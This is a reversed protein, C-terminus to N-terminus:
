KYVETADRIGGFSTMRRFEELNLQEILLTAWKSAHDKTNRNELIIIRTMM